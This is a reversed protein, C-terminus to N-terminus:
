AAVAPVSLDTGIRSLERSIFRRAELTIDTELMAAFRKEFDAPTIGGPATGQTAATVADSIQTLASRDQGFQYAALLDFAEDLSPAQASAAGAFLAAALLAASVTLKMTKKM